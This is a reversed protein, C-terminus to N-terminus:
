EVAIRREQWAIGGRSDRLVIWLWAEGAAPTRWTTTVSTASDAEGVASADVALEGATAFWSVRMAEIREILRQTLPDYYLYHEAAGAPWAAHLTVDSHAPVRDISQPELTPNANAVYELDYRRALETPATPLKCTIRSLGFALEDVV